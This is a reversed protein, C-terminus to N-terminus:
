VDEGVGFSIKTATAHILAHKDLWTGGAYDATGSKRCCASRAYLDNSCDGYFRSDGTALVGPGTM